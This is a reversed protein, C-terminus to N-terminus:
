RRAPAGRLLGETSVDEDVGPWHIGFGGAVIEWKSRQAATAKALRPFWELPVSITRGDVLDVVLRYKTLKANKVREGAHPM